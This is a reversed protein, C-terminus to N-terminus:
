HLGPREGKIAVRPPRPSRLLDDVDARSRHTPTLPSPAATHAVDGCVRRADQRQFHPVTANAVDGHVPPRTPRNDDTVVAVTSRRPTPSTWPSASTSPTL